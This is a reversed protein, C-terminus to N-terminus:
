MEPGDIETSKAENIGMHWIDWLWIRLTFRFFTKNVSDCYSSHIRSRFPMLILQCERSQWKRPLLGVNTHLRRLWTQASFNNSQKLVKSLFGFCPKFYHMFSEIKANKKPEFAAPVALLGRKGKERRIMHILPKSIICKLSDIEGM